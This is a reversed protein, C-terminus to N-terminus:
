ANLPIYLHNYLRWEKVSLLMTIQFIIYPVIGVDDWPRIHADAGVVFHIEKPTNDDGFLNATGEADALTVGRSGVNVDISLNQKAICLTASRYLFSGADHPARWWENLYPLGSGTVPEVGMIYLVM